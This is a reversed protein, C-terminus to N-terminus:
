RPGKNHKGDFILLEASWPAANRRAPEDAVAVVALM